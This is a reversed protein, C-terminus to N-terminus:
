YRSFPRKKKRHNECWEEALVHISMVAGERLGTLRAIQGRDLDRHGLAEPTYGEEDLLHYVQDM